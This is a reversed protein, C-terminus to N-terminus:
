NVINKKILIRHEKIEYTAQIAKCIIRIRNFYEIGSIDGTFLWDNMEEREPVITIGYEKELAAIVESIKANVFSMSDNQVANATVGSVNTLDKQIPRPQEVLSTIFQENKGVFTVKENPQLIVGDANGTRPDTNHSNYVAVKGSVVDIEQNARGADNRVWFSTGLVKTVIKGTVVYFPRRIDRAVDFFAAGELHVERENKGFHAPFYISASPQLSLVSGDELTMSVANGSLNSKKIWDGPLISGSLPNRGISTQQYVITGVLILIAAAASIKLFLPVRLFYSTRLVNKPQDAIDGTHGSSSISSQLNSWLRQEIVPLDEKRISQWYEDKDLLTLWGDILNKESQSCQGDLYKQLLFNLDKRSM